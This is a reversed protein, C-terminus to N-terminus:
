ESEAAIDELVKIVKEADKKVQESGEEATEDILTERDQEVLQELSATQDQEASRTQQQSLDLLKKDLSAQVQQTFEENVPEPEVPVEVTKAQEQQGCALLFCLTLTTVLLRCYRYLIM